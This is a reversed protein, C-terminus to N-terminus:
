KDPLTKAHENLKNLKLKLEDHAVKLQEYGILKETQDYYRKKWEDIEDMLDQIKRDQQSVVDRLEKRIEGEMDIKKGSRSLATEVVKVGIGGFIAVLLPVWQEFM